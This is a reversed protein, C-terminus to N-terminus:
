LNSIVLSRFTKLLYNFCAWRPFKRKVFKQVGCTIERNKTNRHHFSRFYNKIKGQLLSKNRQTFAIRMGTDRLFTWEKFSLPRETFPDTPELTIYQPNQYKDM